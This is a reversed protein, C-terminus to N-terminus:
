QEALHLHSLNRILVGTRDPSDMTAVAELQASIARGNPEEVCIALRKKARTLGVYVLREYEGRERAKRHYEAIQYGAVGEKSQAIAFNRNRVDVSLGSGSRADSKNLDLLVVNEFELGKSKHITMVKVKQDDEESWDADGEEHKLKQVTRVYEAFRSAGFEPMDAAIRLLKRVNAIAQEGGFVQSVEVLYDTENLLTAILRWAPLRDAYQMLPLVWKRVREIRERDRALELEITQFAEFIQEQAALQVIGDDSLRVFPGKLFQLLRLRNTPYILAELASALDEVELRTYFNTGGDVLDVEVGIKQLQEAISRGAAKARCLIATSGVFRQTAIADAIERAVFGHNIKNSRWIEVGDFRTEPRELDIETAGMPRYGEGWRQGFFRDVFALITPESRHNKSLPFSKESQIRALFLEPDAGRWGFISQQSDGVLMQNEVGLSVLLRYQTPNLDQAEDVLVVKYSRRLEAAVEESSEVLNVALSELMAFDFKQEAHMIADLRKWVAVAFQGGHCTRRAAARNMDDGKIEKLSDPLRLKSSKCESRIRALTVEISGCPNLALKSELIIAREWQDMVADPSSVYRAFADRSWASGRVMEIIKSTTGQLKEDIGLGRSNFERKSGEEMFEMWDPHDPLDYSLADRVAQRMFLTPEAGSLIDFSPDIGAAFSHERLVRECFGHITQIPGTEAMQAQDFLGAERLSRVIRSKMEEAAKRTFTISLIELPSIGFVQVLRIYRQTLVSTKGSGAAAVVNFVPDNAAVVQLQEQTFTFSSSM